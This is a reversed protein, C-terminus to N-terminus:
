PNNEKLKRLLKTLEKDWLRQKEKLASASASNPLERFFSWLNTFSDGWLLAFDSDVSDRLLDIMEAADDDRTYKYKLTEDYYIPTVLYYSAAAMAELTAATMPIKSSSANIGYLMNWDSLRTRYNQEKNLKPLPIIYYNDMERLYKGAYGVGSMYFLTKEAAYVDQHDFPQPNGTYLVGRAAKLEFYKEMASITNANNFTMSVVGDADKTSFKVGLGTVIIDACAHYLMVGITDDKDVKDSESGNDIYIEESMKIMLDMTWEGSRVIDYISGYNQFLYKEYLDGNVFTCYMGSNYGLTIDGTLWFMNNEYTLEKNYANDWYPQSLDIYDASYKELENYNILFAGLTPIVVDFLQTGVIVDYDDSGSQMSQIASTYVLSSRESAPLSVVDIEVGLRSQIKQNRKFIAIDVADGEGEDVKISGEGMGEGEANRPIVFVVTNDSENSFDLDEPLTKMWQEDTIAESINTKSNGTSDACSFLMSVSSLVTVLVLIVSFARKMIYRRQM